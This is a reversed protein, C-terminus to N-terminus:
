WNDDANMQYISGSADEYLQFVRATHPDAVGNEAVQGDQTIAWVNGSPDTLSGERGWVHLNPIAPNAAMTTEKAV